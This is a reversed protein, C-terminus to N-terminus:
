YHVVIKDNQELFNDLGLGEWRLVNETITYDLNYVQVIGGQPVLSVSQPNTPTKSLTIQKALIDSQSLTFTDVTEANADVAYQVLLIDDVELKNELTLGEWLVVNGITIFDEGYIQQVGGVPTVIVFDTVAPIKSLTIQKNDIDSQTLTIKDIVKDSVSSAGISIGGQTVGDGGFYKNLTTDFVLEAVELIIALRQASTIRPVKFIAM